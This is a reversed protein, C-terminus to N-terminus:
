VRVSDTQIYKKDQTSKCAHPTYLRPIGQLYANAALARALSEDADEDSWECEESSSSEAREPSGAVDSTPTIYGDAFNAMSEVSRLKATSRQEGLPMCNSKETHPIHLQRFRSSSCSTVHRSTTRNTPSTNSNSQVSSSPPWRCSSWLSFDRTAPWPNPAVSSGTHHLLLLVRSAASTAAAAAPTHQARLM